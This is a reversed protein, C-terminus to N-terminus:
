IRGKRQLSVLSEVLWDEAERRSAIVGHNEVVLREVRLSGGGGLAGATRRNNLVRWGAPTFGLEPGEEGFLHWGATSSNTGNRYGGPRNYARPLSGYRSLAYRMSAYINAIPAVSVGYMFPGTKRYKGAYAQFTPRIVQMLGVSPMGNKANIDWLNVARPNGGSEQNMRRLTLGLYAPPQGLMRLAMQVVGSWRKVGSGGSSGLGIASGLNGVLDGAMNKVKDILGRVAKRPIEAVMRAWPSSGLSSLKNLPGQLLKKAKATPDTLFDAIGGVASKAAGGVKKVGGIIDGLIGGDEMFHAGAATWLARARTAYKPDTPIVYEPYNPNGEGVIATPRNFIGPGSRGVTGGSELLRIEKLNNKIGIWGTIKGWINEIGNNWVKDIVWNVPGKTKSKIGNWIEGIGDRMGSFFGKVRDRLTRAWGPITSTFFERIPNFVRSKISQYVGVLRDRLGQWADTVRNRASAAWGPITKTFFNGIPAFVRDRLFVWVASIASKINDWYKTILRVAIGVPGTLVAVINKWNRKIFDVVFNFGAKIKDWYKVVIGVAIGIPGTLIALILKWNDKIFNWVYLFAAKIKDWYKVIAAVALGIPGTLLILILKWHDKVWNFVFVLAKWIADWATKLARGVANVINRFTESKKYALVIAAVLLVIGTIILGIPNSIIAVALIRFGAATLLLALRLAVLGYRFALMAIRAVRMALAFGATAAAAIKSALAHAVLAIRHAVLTVRSAYTVGTATTVSTTFLWTAATSAATYIAYAKMALNVSIIAPVLLELVPTPIADVIDAFVSVLTLGVGGLPGAASAIDGFASGLSSLTDGLVPGSEKVYDMFGIFGSNGELNAGWNAFGETLDALGGTVQSSMPTFANMIGTIGVVINKSTDLFTRLAGAGNATVNRGFERFTRGAVGEGLTGVFSEIEHAVSKVVPTLSPLLGRLFNIGKTFVPMTSGSLSRSWAQSEDKLKLFAEATARTAKPMADLEQKYLAQAKTATDSATRSATLAKNYAEARDKAEASMDATIKVAEGYKYGFKAAMDQALSSQVAAKTKADEAVAQQKMAKSIDQFQPVVAAGYAVMAGAALGAASVVAGLGAVVTATAPVLSTTLAQAGIAGLAKLAKMAPKTDSDIRVFGTAVLISM